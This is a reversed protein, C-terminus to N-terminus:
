LGGAALLMVGNAASLSRTRFIDLRILPAPHSREIFVFAVLLAFAVVALTITTASAWGNSEARLIAYVLVTLGATVSVAGPLDLATSAGPARSEPVYRI